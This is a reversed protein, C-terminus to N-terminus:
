ARGQGRGPQQREGPGAAHALGFEGEPGAALAGALIGIADPEDLQRGDLVGLEDDCATNVASPRWSWEDLQATEVRLSYRASM